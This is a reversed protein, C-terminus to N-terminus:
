NKPGNVAAQWATPYQDLSLRSAPQGFTRLLYSQFRGYVKWYPHVRADNLARARQKPNLAAFNPPTPEPTPKAPAPNLFEKVIREYVAVSQSYPIALADTQKIFFKKVDVFAYPPIPNPKFYYATSALDSKLDNVIEKIQPPFAPAGQSDGGQYIPSHNEGALPLPSAGLVRPSEQLVQQVFPTSCVSQAISSGNEPEEQQATSSARQKRPKRRHGKNQATSLGAGTNPKHEQAISSLWDPRPIPSVYYQAEAWVVHKRPKGTLREDATIAHRPRERRALGAAILERMAKNRTNRHMEAEREIERPSYWHVGIRVEGTKADALKRLILHLHRANKSLGSNRGLLSADIERVFFPKRKKKGQPQNPTANNEDM